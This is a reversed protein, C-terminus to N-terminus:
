RGGGLKMVLNQLRNQVFDLTTATDKKELIHVLIRGGSLIDVSLTGPTLTIFHAILIQQWGKLHEELPIEFFDSEISRPRRLIVLMVKVSSLTVQEIFLYILQIAALLRRM